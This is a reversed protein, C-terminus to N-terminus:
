YPLVQDKRPIEQQIPLVRTLPTRGASFNAEGWGEYYYADFLEAIRRKTPNVEAKMFQLEFIGPVLPLLSYWIKGDRERCYATGQDAMRELMAQLEAPERGLRFALEGLEEPREQMDLALRAEEPTFIMELIGRLNDSRPAGLPFSNMRAMLLDYLDDQGNRRDDM